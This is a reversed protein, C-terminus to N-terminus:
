QRYLQEAAAPLCQPLPLKYGFDNGTFNNLSQPYVNRTHYRGLIMELLTTLRSRTFMATHYRDLIMVNYITVLSHLDIYHIHYKGLIVMSSTTLFNCTIMAPITRDSILVSLTKLHIRTFIASMTGVMFRTYNNQAIISGQKYSAYYM